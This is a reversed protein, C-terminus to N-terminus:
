VPPPAPLHCYSTCFVSPCRSKQLHPLGVDAAVGHKGTPHCGARWWRRCAACRRAWSALWASWRRLACCPHAICPLTHDWAGAAPACQQPPLCAPLAGLPGLAGPPPAPGAPARATCPTRRPQIRPQVPCQARAQLRPRHISSAVAAPARCSCRVTALWARLQVAAARGGYRCLRQASFAADSSLRHPHALLRWEFRLTSIIPTLGAIAANAQLPAHLPHPNPLSASGLGLSLQRICWPPIHSAGEAWRGPAACCAPTSAAWSRRPKRRWPLARLSTCSACLARRRGGAAAAWLPRSPRCPLSPRSSSWHWGGGTPM